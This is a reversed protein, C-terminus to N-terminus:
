RAISWCNTSTKIGLYMSQIDKYKTSSKKLHSIWDDGGGSSVLETPTTKKEPHKVVLVPNNYRVLTPYQGITNADPSPEM